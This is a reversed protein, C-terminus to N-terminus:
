SQVERTGSMTWWHSIASVMVQQHATLQPNAALVGELLADVGEKNIGKGDIYHQLVAAQVKNCPERIALMDDMTIAISGSM